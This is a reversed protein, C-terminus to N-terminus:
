TDTPSPPERYIFVPRTAHHLVHHSVSGLLVRKLFGTGHSGIIILDFAEDDAIECIRTAPDGHDVRVRAGHPLLSATTAANCRAEADGEEIVAPDTIVTAAGLDGRVVFTQPRVVTVVTFEVEGLLMAAHRAASNALASGDTAVLIRRM